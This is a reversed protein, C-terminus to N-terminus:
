INHESQLYKQLKNIKTKKSEKIESDSILNRTQLLDVVTLLDGIEHSLRQRNDYPQDKESELVGFRLMKSVRQGVECCEEALIILLEKDLGEPLDHESKYNDNPM